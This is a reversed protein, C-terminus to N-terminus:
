KGEGTRSSRDNDPKKDGDAEPEDGLTEDGVTGDDTPEQADDDTNENDDSGFGRRNLGSGGVDMGVTRLWIAAETQAKQMGDPVKAALYFSACAANLYTAMFLQIFQSVVLGLIMSMGSLLMECLMAGLLWGLFSMELMFYTTKKDKMAEKSKRIAELVGIEPNEALYFPAMSYRIVAIIGPVVLLLSWLLVKVYMVLFLLLAKGASGMRSFLGKFGLEEKQLRCIFYYNCGVTFVPTLLLALIGAISLYTWTEMPIASVAASMAEYSTYRTLDPLRTAQLLQMLTLPLSAFFSVLLATQWNGKIARVAKSKFVYPSILM